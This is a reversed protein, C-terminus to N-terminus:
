APDLPERTTQNKADLDSLTMPGQPTHMPVGILGMQALLQGHRQIALNDSKVVFDSFSCHEFRTLGGNHILTVNKFTCKVFRKNDLVVDQNLFQLGVIVELDALRTANTKVPEPVADRYNRYLLIIVSTFFILLGAAAWVWGPFGARWLDIGDSVIGYVSFIAGILMAVSIAVQKRAFRVIEM